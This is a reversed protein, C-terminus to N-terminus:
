ALLTICFNFNQSPPHHLQPTIKLIHV